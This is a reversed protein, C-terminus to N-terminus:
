RRIVLRFEVDGIENKLVQQGHLVRLLSNKSLKEYGDTLNYTTSLRSNIDWRTLKRCM